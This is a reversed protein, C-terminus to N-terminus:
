YRYSFHGTYISLFRASERQILRVDPYDDGQIVLSLRKREMVAESESEHIALERLVDHQTVM